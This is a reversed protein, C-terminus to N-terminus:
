RDRQHQRDDDVDVPRTLAEDVYALLGQEIKLFLQMRASRPSRTIRSAVNLGGKDLKDIAIIAPLAMNNCGGCQSATRAAPIRRMEASEWFVAVLIRDIKALRELHTIHPVDETRGVDGLGV